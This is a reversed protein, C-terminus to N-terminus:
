LKINDEAVYHTQTNLDENNVVYLYFQLKIPVQKWNSVGTHPCSVIAQTVMM